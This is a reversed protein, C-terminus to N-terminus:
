PKAEAGLVGLAGLAIKGVLADVKVCESQLSREIEDLVVNKEEVHRCRHRTERFVHMLRGSLLGFLKLTTQPFLKDPNDLYAEPVRLTARKKSHDAIMQCGFDDADHWAVSVTWDGIELVRKLGVIYDDLVKPELLRKKSM